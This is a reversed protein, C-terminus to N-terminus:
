RGASSELATRIHPPLKLPSFGQEDIVSNFSDVYVRAEDLKGAKYLEVVRKLAKSKMSREQVTLARMEMVFQDFTGGQEIYDLIVGKMQAVAEKKAKEDDTDDENIVVDRRLLPMIANTDLGMLMGPIFAGGEISLGVLNEEFSNDFLPRPTVDEWNGESDCKYVKGHSHVTRFEGEKPPPFTLIRGDDTLMRGPKKVYNNTAASIRAERPSVAPPQTAESPPQSPEVPSVPAAEASTTAAEPPSPPTDSVAPSPQRRPSSARTGLYIAVIAAVAVAAIVIIKSKRGAVQSKGRKSTTVIPM